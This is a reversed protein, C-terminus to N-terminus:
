WKREGIPDVMDVRRHLHDIRLRGALGAETQEATNESSMLTSVATGGTNKPRAALGVSPARSPCRNPHLSAIVGSEDISDRVHGEGSNKPVASALEIM